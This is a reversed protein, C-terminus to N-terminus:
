WSFRRRIRKGVKTATLLGAAVRVLGLAMALGAAVRPFRSRPKKVEPLDVIEKPPLEHMEIIEEVTATLM